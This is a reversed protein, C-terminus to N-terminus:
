GTKTQTVGNIVKTMDQSVIQQILFVNSSDSLVHTALWIEEDMSERATVWKYFSMEEGTETQRKHCQVTSTKHGM